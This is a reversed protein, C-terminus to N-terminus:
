FNLIPSKWTNTESPVPKFLTNTPANTFGASFVPGAPLVSPPPSLPMESIAGEEALQDMEPTQIIKNGSYGLADWRQDDTLIFIINPKEALQASLDLYGQFTLGFVIILATIRNKM